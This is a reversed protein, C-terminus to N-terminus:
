TLQPGDPERDKAYVIEEEEDLDEDEAPPKKGTLEFFIRRDTANELSLLGANYSTM